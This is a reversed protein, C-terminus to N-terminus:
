PRLALWVARALEATRYPKRLLPVGDPVGGRAGDPVGGRAGDPVGGRAGDPVGGRAGDPVGGRVGGGQRIADLAGSTLLVKTQPWHCLVHRALGNGDMEGPMVIDTFLLDFGQDAMALLATAASDAETVQYGLDGLALASIRRLQAEDDVVLVREGRGRHLAPDNGPEAVPVDLARPLYLRFTSGAGPASRVTVHGNSQKAFGFVMSLGLGTGLAPPKTTFFPEFIRGIADPAIGTGTDAVEIVAYDGEAMDPSVAAQAADVRHNATAITLTGGDPMADRANAALNLVCAELQAADARVPWADKALRQVVTVRNGLTRALLRATAGIQLNTPIRTPSLPQRRAFALLHQTLAAGRLSAALAETVMETASGGEPLEAQLLDLYGIVIALLNNFDHAVGGTLRGLAEMKQAQRLAENRGTRAVAEALVNAFGTLFDIDHRDYQHPVPSDVELVGYPTGDTAAIVVDVTSVIGHRAYFAPLLLSNGERVDRIIQPERTVYARGQPSTEDAQSVVQGIVDLEWGCGAEILLDNEAPRYRCIKCFPVDLSAACIRAAETLIALLDTERFAFTGFAALAAQQRLLREITHESAPATM